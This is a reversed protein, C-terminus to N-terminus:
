LRAGLDNWRFAELGFTVNFSNGIYYRGTVEATNFIWTETLFKSEYGATNPIKNYFGM